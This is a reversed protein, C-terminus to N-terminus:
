QSNVGGESLSDLSERENDPFLDLQVVGFASEVLLSEVELLAVDLEMFAREIPQGPVFLGLQRLEYFRRRIIKHNTRVFNIIEEPTRLVTM